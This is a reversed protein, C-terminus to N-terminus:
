DASFWKIDWRFPGTNRGEPYSANPDRVVSMDMTAAVHHRETGEFVDHYIAYFRYLFTTSGAEVNKILEM